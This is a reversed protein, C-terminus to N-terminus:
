RATGTWDDRGSTRAKVRGPNVNLCPGTRSGGVGDRVLAVNSLLGIGCMDDQEGSGGERRNGGGLVRGGIGIGTDTDGACRSKSEL